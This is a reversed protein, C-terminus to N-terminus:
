VPLIIQTLFVDRNQRFNIMGGYKSVIQVVSKTGTGGYEKTSVPLDNKFKVEGSVTNRVEIKLNEDEADATLAITREECDANKCAELANELINSLMSGLEPLTISLSKPINANATFYIGEAQTKGDYLCLVTNAIHNECYQKATSENISSDYLKLYEEAGEVDGDHLYEMMIQNHHRLDHRNRKSSEVFEEYSNLQAYLLNENLKLQQKESRHEYEKITRSLSWFITAYICFMTLVMLLLSIIDEKLMVQIDSATIIAYMFNLLVALSAALFLQWRDVVQRYLPWLYKKFGFLIIPYLVLRVVTIESITASLTYSIIVVFIFVNIVTIINFMWKMSNDTFLFKCVIGCALWIIVSVKSITTIDYYCYLYIGIGTILTYLAVFAIVTVKKSYKAEAAMFIHLLIFFNSVIGRIINDYLFEM